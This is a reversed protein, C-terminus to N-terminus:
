KGICFRQFIHALVDEPARRGTVEELAARAVEIDTLVIEEPAGEAARAGAEALAARTRQLLDVHRVNSLAPTDRPSEIVGLAGRMAPRIADTGEGTLLSVETASCVDLDAMSWAAPLDCKNVLVFRPTGATMSMLELDMSELPTSRDLVVVSLDAVRAAGRARDVGEREVEDPAARLGATDVLTVPVGSLSTRETVLDRTTGPYPTVIARSSGALYNFLSSKGTNPRGLIVAHAGERIMRGRAAAALLADIQGVLAVLREAAEARGIFHYGDDPFDVSAELRATVDFLVREIAGIEGSLTGELQDFAQRAQERTVSAILDAIAEAQVLDMRGNFFARLTFEGPRALRAGAGVACRVIQELLVPSGHASIEVVDDGTYSDPAPFSTVVVQDIARPAVGAEEAIVVRALTARRAELPRRRDVLTAAVRAAEPGSLRVIGLAGRGPPTAIAVITDDTAFM